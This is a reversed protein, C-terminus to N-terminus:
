FWYGLVQNPDRESIQRGLRQIGYVLHSLFRNRVLGRVQAGAEDVWGEVPVDARFDWLYKSILMELGLSLIRRELDSRRENSEIEIILVMWWSSLWATVRSMDRFVQWKCYGTLWWCRNDEEESDRSDRHLGAGPEESGAWTTAGLQLHDTWM